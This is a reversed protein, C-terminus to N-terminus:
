PTRANIQWAEDLVRPQLRDIPMITEAGANNVLVDLKTLKSTLHAILQLVEEHRSFDAAIYTANLERAVAEGARTRDHMWLEAGARRLGAAIAKGIGRTAGTVLAVKGALSFEESSSMYGRSTARQSM